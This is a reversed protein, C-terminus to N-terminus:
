EAVERLLQLRAPTGRRLSPTSQNWKECRRSAEDKTSFYSRSGDGFVLAWAEYPEPKIRYTTGTWTPADSVPAWQGARFGRAANVMLVEVQAGDAWAKIIAAHPHPTRKASM